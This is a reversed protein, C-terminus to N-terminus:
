LASLKKILDICRNSYGWENDYWGCVKVLNGDMVSTLPADFICSHPNDIIDISVLPDESYELIGKFRGEAAKAFAANVEKETTAKKLVAVFDTFSGDPTPVRLAMGDLKGNLAPIVKGVASAAGTTTPVISIAAARGRRLDKHPADLLCQDGTYAHVTTMLGKEVGFTDNLVSVMPALCNTTCSANSIVNDQATLIHDNIGMVVTKVDGKAPASILVKKAGGKLHRGASEMDTFFGTSEVVVDVGLDGWPLKGPDRDSLVKVDTGDVSIAGEKALVKGSYKGHTSDYKLLNALTKADTLDNVAVVNLGQNMAARFVLRGIRGFGNIGVTLAM